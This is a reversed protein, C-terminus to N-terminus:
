SRIFVGFPLRKGSGDSDAKRRRKAARPSARPSPANQARSSGDVAGSNRAAAKCASPVRGGGEEASLNFFNNAQAASGSKRTAAGASMIRREASTVDRVSFSHSGSKSAGSGADRRNPM